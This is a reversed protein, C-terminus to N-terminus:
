SVFNLVESVLFSQSANLSSIIKITYTIGVKKEVVIYALTKLKTKLKFKDLVFSFFSSTQQLEHGFEEEHLSKLLLIERTQLTEIYDKQQYRDRICNVVM